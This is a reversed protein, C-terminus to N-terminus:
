VPPLGPDVGTMEVSIEWLRRALAPDRARFARKAVGSPGRMENIGQPGYYGGPAVAPDTAAQLAPWAGMAATNLFWGAAKFMFSVAGFHRGL